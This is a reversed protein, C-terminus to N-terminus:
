RPQEQPSADQEEKELRDERRVVPSTDLTVIGAIMLALGFVAGAIGLVSTRVPEDFLAVGLGVAVLPLTTDIVPSSSALPGAHFANQILFGGVISAVILAYPEWRVFLGWGDDKMRALTAAYLASQLGMLLAGALALASAQVPGNLRRSVVV